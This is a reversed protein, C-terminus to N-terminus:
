GLRQLLQALSELDLGEVRLGGPTILVAPGRGSTSDPPAVEVPRLRAKGGKEELWRSLTQPKLGLDRAVSDLSSGDHMRSKAYRVAQDHLERSYRIGPGSRGGRTRRAAERFRRAEEDM